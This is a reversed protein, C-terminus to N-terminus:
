NNHNFNGIGSKIMALFFTVVNVFPIFWIVKEFISQSGPSRFEKTHIYVIGILSIILYTLIFFVIYLISFASIIDEKSVKDDRIGEVFESLAKNLFIVSELESNFTKM